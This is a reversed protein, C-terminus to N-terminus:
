PRNRRAHQAGLPLSDPSGPALLLRLDEDSGSDSAVHDAASLLRPLELLPPLSQGEHTALFPGGERRAFRLAGPRAGDSVRLLYDLETLTRPTEGAQRARRREARRMLVRGWRDPASDGLAGFLPKGAQTHFPGPGLQLAPDLAFREPHELWSRDYEFSASERGRRSRAWLRGALRPGERLQVYVLVESAM